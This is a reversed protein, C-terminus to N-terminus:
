PRSGGVLPEYPDNDAFVDADDDRVMEALLARPAASASRQQQQHHRRPAAGFLLRPRREYVIFVLALTLAMVLLIIAVVFSRVSYTSENTPNPVGMYDAWAAFSPTGHGTVADWGQESSSFGMTCCSFRTCQNGGVTFNAGLLEEYETGTLDYTRPAINHFTEPREAAMKYLVPNLFGLRPKGAAILRKNLLSVMGGLAPASASTGGVTAIRGGDVVVVYNHGALALDPYARNSWNFTQLDPAAGSNLYEAVAAQQWAPAAFYESFGGGGDFGGTFKNVATEASVDDNLLAGQMCAGELEWAVQTAGVSTVWPSSAPFDPTFASARQATDPTDGSLVEGVVYRGALSCPMFPLLPPLPLTKLHVERHRTPRPMVAALLLANHATDPTDGDGVVYRGFSPLAAGLDVLGDGSMSLLLQACDPNDLVAACQAASDFAYVPFRHPAPEAIYAYLRTRHVCPPSACKCDDKNEFPCVTPPEGSAGGSLDVPLLPDIPCTVGFGSSGDDGSSVLVTVGMAVLKQLEVNTRELYVRPDYGTVPSACIGDSLFCQGMEPFGYSISWVLPGGNDPAYEQTAQLAWDLIWEGENHNLFLTPIGEGMAVMYQTDLDSEAEDAVPDFPPGEYEVYPPELWYDDHALLNHAACLDSSRYFDDFAVIGQRIHFDLEPEAAGGSRHGGPVGYLKRLTRPTIITETFNSAVSSSPDGGSRQQARPPRYKVPRWLETLGTVLKVADNLQPPLAVRGSVRLLPRSAQASVHHYYALRAGPLLREVEGAPATITAHDCGEKAIAGEVTGVWSRVADMWADQEPCRTMACVDDSSLYRGYRKHGPDSVQTATQELKELNCQRFHLKFSVTDEATPDAEAGRQWKRPPAISTRSARAVRSSEIPAMVLKEDMDPTARVAALACCCAVLLRCRM